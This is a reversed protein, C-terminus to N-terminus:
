FRNRSAQSSPDEAFLGSFKEIILRGGMHAYYTLRKHFGTGGDTLPPQPYSATALGNEGTECQGANAKQDFAKYFGHINEDIQQTEEEFTEVNLRVLPKEPLHISPTREIMNRVKDREESRLLKGSKGRAAGDFGIVEVHKVEEVARFPGFVGRRLDLSDKARLQQAVSPECKNVILGYRNGMDGVVDRLAKLITQLTCVDAPRVRGAELTAVFVVKVAAPGRLAASIERAATKRNYIDDLGPTDVFTMNGKDFSSTRKTLGGGLSIGSKFVEKGLLSNQIMSKGVGPNGVLIVRTSQYSENAHGDQYSLSAPKGVGKPPEGYSKRGDTEASSCSAQASPSPVDGPIQKQHRKSKMGTSSTGKASQARKANPQPSSLNQRSSNSHSQDVQSSALADNDDSHKPRYPFHSRSPNSISRRLNAHNNQKGQLTGTYRAPTSTENSAGQRTKRVATPATRGDDCDELDMPPPMEGHASGNQGRECFEPEM